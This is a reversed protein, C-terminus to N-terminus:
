PQGLNSWNSQLNVKRPKAEPKQVSKRERTRAQGNKVTKKHNKIYGYMLMFCFICLDKQEHKNNQNVKKTILFDKDDRKELEDDLIKVLRLSEPTKKTLATIKSCLLTQTDVLNMESVIQFTLASETATFSMEPETGVTRKRKKLKPSIKLLDRITLPKKLDIGGQNKLDKEAPKRVFVMRKKYSECVNKRKDVKAKLKDKVEKLEQLKAIEKAITVGDLAKKKREEAELLESLEGTSIPLILIGLSTPNSPKCKSASIAFRILKVIRRSLTCKTFADPHSDGVQFTM